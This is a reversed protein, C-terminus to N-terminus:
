INDESTVSNEKELRVIFEAEKPSLNFNVSAEQIISELDKDPSFQREKAIWKVANKINQNKPEVGM